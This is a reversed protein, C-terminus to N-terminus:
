IHLCPLRAWGSRIPIALMATQCSTVFHIQMNYYRGKQRETKTKIDMNEINSPIKISKCNQSIQNINKLFANISYDLIIELLSCSLGTCLVSKAKPLEKWPHKTGL